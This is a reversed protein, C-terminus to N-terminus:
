WTWYGTGVALLDFFSSDPVGLVDFLLTSPDQVVRRYIVVQSHSQTDFNSVSKIAKHKRYLAWFRNYFIHTAVRSLSLKTWLLGWFGRKCLSTISLPQNFAGHWPCRSRLMVTVLPPIVNVPQQRLQPHALMRQKSVCVCLILQKQRAKFLTCATVCASWGEEWLFAKERFFITRRFCSTKLAELALLMLFIEM